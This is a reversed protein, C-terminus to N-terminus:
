RGQRVPAGSQGAGAAAPRGAESELTLSGHVGPNGRLHLLTDPSSQSGLGVGGSHRM